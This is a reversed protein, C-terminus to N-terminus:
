FLIDTPIGNDVENSRRRRRLGRPVETPTSHRDAADGADRTGEAEIGAGATDPAPPPLISERFPMPTARSLTPDPPWDFFRDKKLRSYPIAVGRPLVKRSSANQGRLESSFAPRDLEEIQESSPSRVVTQSTGDLRRLTQRHKSNVSFPWLRRPGDGRSHSHTSDTVLDNSPSAQSVQDDGSKESEDSEAAKEAAKRELYKRVFINKWHM